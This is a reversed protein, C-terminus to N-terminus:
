LCRRVSLILILTTCFQHGFLLRKNHEVHQSRATIPQKLGQDLRDSYYTLGWLQEERTIHCALLVWCVACRYYYSPGVDFQLGVRNLNIKVGGHSNCRFLQFSFCSRALESADQSCPLHWDSIVLGVSDGEAALRM